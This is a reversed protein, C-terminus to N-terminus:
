DGKRVHWSVPNRGGDEGELGALEWEVPGDATTLTVTVTMEGAAIRDAIWRASFYHDDPVDGVVRLVDDRDRRLRLQAM